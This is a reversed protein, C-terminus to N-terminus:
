AKIHFHNEHQKGYVCGKYFTLNEHLKTIIRGMLNKHVLLKVDQVGLHCLINTGCISSSAKMPNHSKFTKM